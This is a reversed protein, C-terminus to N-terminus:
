PIHRWTLRQIISRVNGPCTGYIKAIHARTIFSDLKRINVVDDNSLVSVPSSEGRLMRDIHVRSGNRDGRALREPHMRSGNKDGSPQNGRGKVERDTVNEANTGLWLHEPNVCPRNDCKHCVCLGDPIPGNHVIWAARHALILSRNIHALRGYGDRTKAGMWVICDGDVSVRSYLRRKLSELEPTLIAAAMVRGGLFTAFHNHAQAPHWDKAPENLLVVAVAAAFIM